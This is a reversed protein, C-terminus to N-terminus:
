QSTIREVSLAVALTETLEGSRADNFLLGSIPAADRYDLGYALRLYREDPSHGNSVDFGVWGLNPLFAEAWAHGAEQEDRDDLKLYGSVYRAPLGLARACALFIHAHDQCVGVGKGFAQGATTAADTAGIRYDVRDRIRECLAHMGAPTHELGETLPAFQPEWATLPTPRRYLWTRSPADHAGVIGARECTEAEGECAIVVPEGGGEAAVLDCANGHGDGYATEFRANELRVDWHLISQGAGSRPRLRLRQLSAFPAAGYGFLSRHRVRLRM